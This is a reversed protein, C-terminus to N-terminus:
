QTNNLESPSPVFNVIGSNVVMGGISLDVTNSHLYIGRDPYATAVTGSYLPAVRPVKEIPVLFQLWAVPKYPAGGGWKWPLNFLAKSVQHRTFNSAQGPTLDTFYQGPGWQADGDEPDSWWLSGSGVILSVNSALTYHFLTIKTKNDVPDKTRDPILVPDQLELPQPQNALEELWQVAAQADEQTPLSLGPIQQGVGQNQRLSNTLVQACVYIGLLALLAAGSAPDAAVGEGAIGGVWTNSCTNIGFINYCPRIGSLGSPDTLMVPNGMSYLYPNQEQRSPDTNLFRGASPNYYRTRLFVFGNSDTRQGTFGLNSTATGAKAYPNGYPDFTQALSVSGASDTLQRASGLGDYQFYQPTTGDSQALTDLGQWYYSTQGNSTESLVM